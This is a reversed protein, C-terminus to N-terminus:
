QKCRAVVAVSAAGAFTCYTSAGLLFPTKCDCALGAKVMGASGALSGAALTYAVGGVTAWAPTPPPPAPVGAAMEALYPCWIPLLMPDALPKNIYKRALAALTAEDMNLGASALDLVMAPASAAAAWAGAAWQVGYKGTAPDKCYRWAVVGASNARYTRATADVCATGKALTYDAYSPASAAVPAGTCVNVMQAPAEAALLQLAFAAALGLFRVKNM